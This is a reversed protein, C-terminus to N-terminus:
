GPSRLTAGADFEGTLIEAIAERLMPVESQTVEWLKALEASECAHCVANRLDAIREWPITPHDTRLSQPMNKVVEGIVALRYIVADQTKEDTLFTAKGKVTYQEIANLADRIRFLQQRRAKTM